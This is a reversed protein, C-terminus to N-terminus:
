KASEPRDRLIKMREKPARVRYPSVGQAEMSKLEKVINSVAEECIKQGLDKSAKEPFGMVGVEIQEKQHTHPIEYPSDSRVRLEQYFDPDERMLEAVEPEDMVIESRVEQPAWYLMLSTEVAGSHYDKKQFWEMMTPSFEWFPLVVLQLDELHPNEWLFVRLAERVHANLESGGHGMVICVRRFGQIYLSLAAETLLLSVIAPNVNITGPLMGGSFSYAITPAIVCPFGEAVRMCMQEANHVDTGLPLHYGHQECVGLPILVTRTEKLAERLERVTMKLMVRPEM